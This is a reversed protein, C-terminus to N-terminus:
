VKRRTDLPKEEAYNYLIWPLDGFHLLGAYLAGEPPPRPIVFHQKVNALVLLSCDEKKIIRKIKYYKLKCFKTKEYIFPLGNSDIYHNKNSKLIGRLTDIQARLSYLNKHPTQLRRIGLTDGPMNKDDVISGDILLLGDQREWNGSDLQYVPFRIKLISSYSIVM